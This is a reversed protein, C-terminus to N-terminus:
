QACMRITYAEDHGLLLVCYMLKLPRLRVLHTEVCAHIALQKIKRM